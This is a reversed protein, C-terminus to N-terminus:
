LYNSPFKFRKQPREFLPPHLWRVATRKCIYKATKQLYQLRRGDRRRGGNEQVEGVFDWHQGKRKTRKREM